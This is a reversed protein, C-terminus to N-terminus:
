RRSNKKEDPENLRALRRRLAESQMQELLDAGAQELGRALPNRAKQRFYDLLGQQLNGQHRRIRPQRRVFNEQALDQMADMDVGIDNQEQDYYDRTEEYRNVYADFDAMDLGVPLEGSEFPNSAQITAMRNQVPKGTLPDITQVVNNMFYKRFTEKYADGLLERKIAEPIKMSIIKSKKQQLEDKFAQVVQPDFDDFSFVTNEPNPPVVDEVIPRGEDLQQKAEELDNLQQKYSLDIYVDPSAHKQYGANSGINGFELMEANTPKHTHTFENLNGFLAHMHPKLKPFERNEFRYTNCPLPRFPSRINYSM